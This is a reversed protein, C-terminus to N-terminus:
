TNSHIKELIKIDQSQNFSEFQDIYGPALITNQILECNDINQDILDSLKITSLSEILNKIQRIRDFDGLVNDFSTDISYNIPINYDNKLFDYTGPQGISMLVNGSILPKWTKETLFPGPRNYRIDDIWHLGFSDTENSFNILCNQYPPNLFDFMNFEYYNKDLTYNDITHKYNLVEWNFEYYNKDLTYNDITHKYNLVEWDLDNFSVDSKLSKILEDHRSDNTLNHWSIISDNAAYKLLSLTVIARFQRRFYSLSSFKKYIKKSKVNPIQSLNINNLVHMLPLYWHRYKFFTVNDPYVHDYNNVDALYIFQTDPNLKAANAVANYRPSEFFTSIIVLKKNIQFQLSGTNLILQIKSQDIETLFNYDPQM